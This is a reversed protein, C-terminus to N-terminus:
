GHWRWRQRYCTEDQASENLTQMKATMEQAQKMVAGLNPLNGLGKLM